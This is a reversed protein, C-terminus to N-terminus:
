WWENQGFFFDTLEINLYRPVITSHAKVNHVIVNLATMKNVPTKPTMLQVITTVLTLIVNTMKLHTTTVITTVIMSMTTNM